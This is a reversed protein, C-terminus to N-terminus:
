TQTYVFGQTGAIKVSITAFHPIKRHVRIM